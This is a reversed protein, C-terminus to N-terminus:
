LIGKLIHGNNKMFYVTSFDKFFEYAKKSDIIKDEKGLYVEIKTGKKLLQNIKEEDWKYTLLTQLEEFSGEKFYKSVDISSPYSINKLFNECYSKSDKKFFMLQMREFKQNQTQFFAPSFLQILDIRKDSNLAEEFVKIAGYSFGSLTFDNEILYECFLEKENNLCFGSFYNSKM